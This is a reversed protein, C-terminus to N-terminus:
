KKVPNLDVGFHPHHFTGDMLVPIVSGHKRKFLPDLVKAFISKVGSTEQSFNADTRVTGHFDIKETLLNYNGKLQAAAGPVTFSFETFAATGNRLEVHGRTQSSVDGAPQEENEKQDAKKAGEANESLRDVDAQTGPREFRGNGIEFDGVLTVEKLFPKGNPPVTVHAQYSMAGSMPPRNGSVFLRLMDQIRGDRVTFDLSTFKRPWGEKKAVIGSVAIATKGYTADVRNLTVDGNLADVSAIFHSRLLDAHGSQMVEFDPIDTAGEVSVNGLPGSFGGKSSVLGSIGQFVSLDGRDFTYTGSVPTRDAKGQLFPGISGTSKIEGPPEANQMDVQYSMKDKVSVTELRLEHIDFTLTRLSDSRPFELAANDANVEGITTHSNMQGSLPNGIKGPPPAQLRLGVLLIRSVYHPRFLLDFYSGRITLKQVTVHWPLDPDSSNSQFKVGEAKCGPHPFYVIQFNDFVYTGPFTDQLSAIVNAKSFPFFRVLLIVAAIIAIAVIGSIWRWQRQSISRMAQGLLTRASGDSITRKLGKAEKLM